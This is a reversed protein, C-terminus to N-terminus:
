LGIATRHKELVDVGDYKEVMNMIDIEVIDENDITLKYYSISSEVKMPSNEGSKATGMDVSKHRGRIVVEVASVAGTDDRQYSGAFRLMVGDHTTVGMQRLPQDMLGGCTWEIALAELGMHTEIPAAMGGARYEETQKALTPLVVEEVQGVYSIGDNFLNMHKLKRPLAM